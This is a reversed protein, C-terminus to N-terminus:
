AFMKLGSGASIRPVNDSVPAMSQRKRGSVKFRGVGIVNSSPSFKPLPSLNKSKAQKSFGLLSDFVM